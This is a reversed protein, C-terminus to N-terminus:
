NQNREELRKAVKSAPMDQETTVFFTGTTTDSVTFLPSAHELYHMSVQYRGVQGVTTGAVGLCLVLFLTFGMGALLFKYEKKM